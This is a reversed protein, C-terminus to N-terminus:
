GWQIFRLTNRDPDKVYFERNGWSQDIPGEHVEKPSDPNGPTRLGRGRFKRFLADADDTTVVVITGPAGDGRHISLILQGGERELICFAPEPGDDGGVRKFDLVNTYFELSKKM